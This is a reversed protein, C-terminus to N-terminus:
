AYLSDILAQAAGPLNSVTVLRIGLEAALMEVEDEIRKYGDRYLRLSASPTDDPLWVLLTLTAETLLFRHRYALLKACAQSFALASPRPDRFFLLAGDPSVADPALYRAWHPVPPEFTDWARSDEQMAQFKVSEWFSGLLRTASTAGATQGLARAIPDDPWPEHADVTDDLLWWLPAGTIEALISLHKISPRTRHEPTLTEWQTVAPRNIGCAKAVAAQTLMAKRRAAKIRAHLESRKSPM